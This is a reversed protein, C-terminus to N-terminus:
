GWGVLNALQFDARYFNYSSNLLRMRSVLTLSPSAPLYSRALWKKDCITGTDGRDRIILHFLEFM